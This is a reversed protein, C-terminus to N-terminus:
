SPEPTGQGTGKGEGPLIKLVSERARRMKLRVRELTTSGDFLVILVARGGVPAACASLGRAVVVVREEISTKRGNDAAADSLVDAVVQALAEAAGDDIVGEAGAHALVEGEPGCLMVKRGGADRQLKECADFLDSAM